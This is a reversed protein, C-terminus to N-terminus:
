MASTMFIIALSQGAELQSSSMGHCQTGCSLAACAAYDARELGRKLSAEVRRWRMDGSQPLPAVNGTAPHWAQRRNALAPVIGFRVVGGSQGKARRRNGCSRAQAFGNFSASGDM